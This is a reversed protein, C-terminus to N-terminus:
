RVFICFSVASAISELVSSAGTSAFAFRTNDAVSKVALKQSSGEGLIRSEGLAEVVLTGSSAVSAKVEIREGASGERGFTAELTAGAPLIVGQTEEEWLVDGSAEIVNVRRGLAQSYAAKWDAEVAGADLRL